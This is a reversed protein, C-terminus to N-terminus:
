HVVRDLLSFWIATGILLGLREYVLRLQLLDVPRQARAVQRVMQLLLSIHRRGGHVTGACGVRRRELEMRQMVGLLQSPKLPRRALIRSEVSPRAALGVEGLRLCRRGDVGHLTGCKLIAIVNARPLAEVLVLPILQDLLVQSAVLM